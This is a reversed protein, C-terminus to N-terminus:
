NVLLVLKFYMAIEVKVQYNSITSTIVESDYPIVTKRAIRIRVVNKWNAAVCGIYKSKAQM